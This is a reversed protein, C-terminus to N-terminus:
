SQGPVAPDPPPRLGRDWLEATQLLWFVAFLSILSTEVTLKWYHFGAAWLGLNVVVALTMLGGIVTYRNWRCRPGSGTPGSFHLNVANLWVNGLICGFMAVAAIDHGHDTLWARRLWFVPVTALFQVVAVVYGLKAITTPRAAPDKRQDLRVLVALTVLVAGEVALLAFVNNGITLDRNVTGTVVGCTGLQPTPVLAVFPACIGALNLLVDEWDTNGKLAVLCVGLAVLAGVFVNQVPTYYYGSLAPQWCHGAARLHERVVAVALGFVLGVMALRLYRYTAVAAAAPDPGPSQKAAVSQFLRM